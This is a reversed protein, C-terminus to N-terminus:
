DVTNGIKTEKSNIKEMFIYVAFIKEWDINQRNM